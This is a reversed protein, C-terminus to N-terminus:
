QIYAIYVNGSGSIMTEMESTTVTSETGTDPDMYTVSSTTYATLLIAHNANTMAIVPYGKNIVYLIESLTCGTLDVRTGGYQELYATCAELSTQGDAPQFAATETDYSLDRNGKEWVYAQDSTVVVGSVDEAMLIASTASDYIGALEGLGYVYFKTTDESDEFDVTLTDGRVIQDSTLIKPSLESIGDEFTFRMQREKLDTTYSELTVGSTEEEENSTIYDETVDTYITDSKSMRSLTVLGNEISIGSIYIGDQAYTKLVENSTDRIELAYMPLIATGTTNTGQDSERVYGCVFDDYVFGLPKVAEGDAAEVTYSESTALNMVQVTTATNLEGDTQYAMLHGDDSVVYQGEELDEALVTQEESEVNIQYLTGGTLVYLMQTDQNYYVMKGLEDEAIAYSKTSPIFAKEEVNNTEVDYYYIAAGVAGEHTGRNMYGYVAFVTNGSNDMSLIRVEHEDNRSRADAGETNSFSFILSLEDSKSNYLWLDREQVFAVITGKKNTEYEVDSDTIGLLIGDEDLVQMNGNFVQNMTRNYNLLYMTGDSYRVRFFEKVNYTEVEGSDGTCTVQYEALLSTYVTNCEKISWEVDTSVSPALSGWQVQTVDSYITVTQFTTDDGEEDTELYSSLEEAYSTDFTKNHFDQAFSICSGVNRDDMTEIRTYYYINQDETELTVKLVAESIDDGLADNVDLSLTEGSLDKVEDELYTEEGDLSYAAYLVGTVDDGSELTMELVGSSGVPTITDRMATIEMDETYGSLINVTYGEVAFEVRPLTPDGMGVTSDDTGRNIWLSSVIFAVIFVAILVVAKILRKKM